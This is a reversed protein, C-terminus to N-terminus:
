VGGVREIELDKRRYVPVEAKSSPRRMVGNEIIARVDIFPRASSHTPVRFSIDLRGSPSAAVVGASEAPFVGPGTSRSACGTRGPQWWWVGHPNAPDVAICLGAPGLGVDIPRSTVVYRDLIAAPSPTQLALLFLFILFM